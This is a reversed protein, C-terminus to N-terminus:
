LFFRAAALTHLGDLSLQLDAITDGNSDLQIYTRGADQYWTVSNAVVNTNQATIFTFAENIETSLQNADLASLDIKNNTGTWNFITDGTDQLRIYRYVDAGGADYLLDAGFGGTITDSGSGGYIIDVGSGGFIVDNSDSGLITDNGSGGYIKDSHSGGDISDDGAQGYITDRGRGGTLTDNGARAYVTDNGDLASISNNSDSGVLTDASNTANLKQALEAGLHDYNNPDENDDEPDNLVSIAVAKSSTNVGDYAIVNIDYVNNGGVDAPDEFNPSTRFRVEGTDADITFLAADDGSLSFSLFYGDPDTAEADYVVQSAATNEMKNATDGSTFSPAVLNPVSEDIDTVTVTVDKTTNHTGDNANIVLDYVNDGDADLPAEYDPTALFRVEGTIADISFYAADDGSLSFTIDDGDADTAVAEYVVTSALINETQNVAEGSTIEPAVNVGVNVTVGLVADSTSGDASTARVTINVNGATLEGAVTVEGTVADIAFAGAADDALSYTIGNTTADADSALATIGVVTGVAANDNVANDAANTDTPTTVTFENVDNVGVTFNSDATSGDASTARVTLNLNAVTERDINGAVTVVGTAADIAFAGDADDVLSYTVGNNTADADSALATIGVVTGVAANEDVANASADADTPTTVSHQNVSGVNVTFVSDATSGDASTARVTLNLSGASLPNGTTVVEGTAADIAFAGGANDTLSYTVGNTTADADSALATIGVSTGAVVNEDIANDANNTDVPTTVAFESVDNVGVTFTSEATSGDASTARVTLNLNAVTERDITGAVTIVGTAADIAFAGDADDVLSYTVTNNTADADTALATIGVVTGIAANENVANAATNTDVPATVSHLNSSAVNVGFVTDATSGDASTARVTINVNGATLAGAVTVVGTAADIAFAGDADDALSYTIGNTTADADSALATIGVVTGVAANDNVANDATNTDTPTTVTFENVDNVGVTFTSEATSGDASTARVTLNLNAVTERDITGAVTIVGTAADITFAGDANDVLSYTVTNNTADADTALATIGVVTGIAANENVANAATNSDVPTIVAHENVDKVTVRVTQTDIGGKGDSVKVVVEYVGDANADALVEANPVNKFTIAGTAADINFLNKDAGDSLSYTLTTGNDVDTAQVATVASTNEDLTLAVVEAGNHSTIVPADNTGNITISLTATDSKAATSLTYTFNETLTQGEALANVLPNNNNLVYTYTGNANLTLIGYQGQLANGVTGATGTGNEAGTRIASLTANAPYTDGTLVNGSANSTAALNSEAVTATDDVAVIKTAQTLLVDAATLNVKDKIRIAIDAVGDGTTDAYVYTQGNVETWVGFKSAKTGSWSLNGLASLDIKDTGSKFDSITDGTSGNWKGKHAASDGIATFVYTDKGQGGRLYDAGADGRLIDNGSGGYLNDNGSGGLLTDDGVSGFLKDNGAGGDLVDKGLSNTSPVLKELFDIELSLAADLISNAYLVDNGDGGNLNDDGLGGILDDNGAGGNILDNGLLGHLIENGNGGNLTDNKNTGSIIKNTM